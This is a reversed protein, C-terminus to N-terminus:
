RRTLHKYGKLGNIRIKFDDDQVDIIIMRRNEDYRWEKTGKVKSPKAFSKVCLRYALKSNGKINIEGRDEDVTIIIDEYAIGNGTPHHYVLESKGCPYILITERDAWDADGHDTVDSKVKLPIIAGGRIFIPYRNLNATYDAMEGPQYTKSEDWYDIWVGTTPFYVRKADNEDTLVSVFIDEGLCHQNSVKSARRILSQGTLNTEVSYSFIYPALESHLTAYYRYIDVTEEDHFWPLHNELGGNSGGNLMVPMLSGFQAYRILQKKTSKAKYYGGVEAALCGYGVAASDYLDDLQEKLGNWDGSFDGSWGVTCVSIPAYCGGRDSYPRALIIGEKKRDLISKEMYAYYYRRFYEKDMKGISTKVTDGLMNAGGDCKWGDIGMRLVNDLLSQWWACAAPSTFDLHVGKGKWWGHDAGDDVAFQGNKAAEYFPNEQNIFGTMWLIVRVGKAHLGDIMEQPRPYRDEDWIFTNYATAWPSDIIVTGVPINRSLYGEVLGETSQRTNGNDEWVWPELAWRPCVPPRGPFINIASPTM